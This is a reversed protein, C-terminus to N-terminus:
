VCCPFWSVTGLFMLASGTGNGFIWLKGHSDAGSIHISKQTGGIEVTEFM